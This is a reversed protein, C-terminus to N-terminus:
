SPECGCGTFHLALAVAFATGVIAGLAVWIRPVTSSRRTWGALSVFLGLALWPAALLPHVGFLARGLGQPDSQTPLTM